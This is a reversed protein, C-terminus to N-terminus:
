PQEEKVPPQTRSGGTTTRARQVVVRAGVDITHPTCGLAMALRMADM